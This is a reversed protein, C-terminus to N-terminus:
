HKSEGGEEYDVLSRASPHIPDFLASVTALISTEDDSRETCSALAKRIGELYVQGSRREM